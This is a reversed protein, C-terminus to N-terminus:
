IIKFLMRIMTIINNTNITHHNIIISYTYYVKCGTIFVDNLKTGKLSIYDISVTGSLLLQLSEHLPSTPSLIEVDEVIEPSKCTIYELKIVSFTGIKDIASKLDDLHQKSICIGYTVIETIKSGITSIALLMARWSSIDIITNSVKVTNITNSDSNIYISEKIYPCPIINYQKCLSDYDDQFSGKSPIDKAIEVTFNSICNDDNIDYSWM